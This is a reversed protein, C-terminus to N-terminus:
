GKIFKFLEDAFMAHPTEDHHWYKAKLNTYGLNKYKIFFSQDNKEM